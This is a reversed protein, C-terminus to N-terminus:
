TEIQNEWINICKTITTMFNQIAEKNEEGLQDLKCSIYNHMERGITESLASGEDTLSIIVRRRDQVDRERVALKKEILSDVVSTMSGKEINLDQVLETMTRSGKRYLVMLTKGHTKNLKLNDFDLPRFDKLLLYTFRNMTHPIFYRSMSETDPIAKM